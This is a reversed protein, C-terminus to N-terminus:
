PSFAVAERAVQSKAAGMGTMASEVGAEIGGAAVIFAAQASAIGDTDVADERTQGIAEEHVPGAM